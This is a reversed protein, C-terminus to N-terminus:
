TFASGTHYASVKEPNCTYFNCFIVKKRKKFSPPNTTLSTCKTAALTM